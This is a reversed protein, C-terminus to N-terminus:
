PPGLHRLLDGAPLGVATVQPVMAQRCRQCGGSVKGVGDGPGVGAVALARAVANSTRELQDFTMEGDDDIIAIGDPNRAAAAGFGAAATTGFKGSMPVFTTLFKLDLFGAGGLVSLTEWTRALPGGQGTGRLSM